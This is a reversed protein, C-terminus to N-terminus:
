SNLPSVLNPSSTQSNFSQSSTPPLRRRLGPRNPDSERSHDLPEDYSASNSDTKLLLPTQEASQQKNSSNKQDEFIGWLNWLGNNSDVEGPQSLQDARQEFGEKMLINPWSRQSLIKYANRFRENTSSLDVTSKGSLKKSENLYELAKKEYDAFPFTISHGQKKLKELTDYLTKLATAAHLFTDSKGERTNNEPNMLYDACYCLFKAYNTLQLPNCRSALYTVILSFEEIFLPFNDARFKIREVRGIFLNLRKLFRILLSELKGAKEIAELQKIFGENQTRLVRITSCYKDLDNYDQTPM